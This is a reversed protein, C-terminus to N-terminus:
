WVFGVSLGVSLGNNFYYTVPIDVMVPGIGLGIGAMAKAAFAKPKAGPSGADTTISGSSTQQVGAPLNQTDISSKFAVILDSSGFNIDFGFGVSINLVYLLRVATTLEVPITVLNSELGFKVQPDLVITSTGTPGGSGSLDYNVDQNITDVNYIFATNNKQYLLGSGVSLGRWVLLGMLSIEDFIQYNAVVGLSLYDIQSKHPDVPLDYKMYGFKLGLYLGDLLFKSNIGAQAAWIQWGLGAEVDGNNKLDNGIDGLKGFDMTPLQTAFMTGVTVAFLDYGQYGRQTAAHNSYVGANAFAKGLKVPTASITGIDDRIQQIANNWEPLFQGEFTADNFTPPTDTIILAFVNQTGFFALLCLTVFFLKLPKM